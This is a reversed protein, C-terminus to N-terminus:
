SKHGCNTEILFCALTEWVTYLDGPSRALMYVPNLLDPHPRLTELDLSDVLSSVITPRCVVNQTALIDGYVSTKYGM